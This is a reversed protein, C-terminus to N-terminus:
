LGCVRECKTGTEGGRRERTSPIRERNGGGEGEGKKWGETGIYIYVYREEEKQPRFPAFLPHGSWECPIGESTKGNDAREDRPLQSARINRWSYTRLAKRNADGTLEDSVSTARSKRGRSWRTPIIQLTNQSDCFYCILLPDRSSSDSACELEEIFNCKQKTLINNFIFM